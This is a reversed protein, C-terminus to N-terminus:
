LIQKIFSNRYLPELSYIFGRKKKLIEQKNQAVTTTSCNTTKHTINKKLSLITM